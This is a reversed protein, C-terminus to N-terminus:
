RGRGRSKAFFHGVCRELVMLQALAKRFQAQTKDIADQVVSSKTIQGCAISSVQSETYARLFPQWLNDLGMEKYAYVLAEGLPTPSFQMTQDERLAYGRKLTTEIHQAMTADTGIGHQEMKAILDTEKLKEPPRTHGSRLSVEHPRFTEGERLDPLSAQNWNRYPYVDLWNRAKVAVGRTSFKEGGLDIQIVSESGVAKESCCALFHRVVFEYVRKKKNDWNAEGATFKTPHIPPHAKDDHGGSGPNRWLGTQPDLLNSAYAGWQPHSTHEAVIARLDFEPSFKDTETRPYSIFGAQYLDEAVKMAEQSGIRLYSSARKAFEITSLPYPPWKYTPNERISEVRAVAGEASCPEFFIEAAFKDFIRKRGWEFDCAQRTSENRYAVHVYWFEEPVHAYIEWQRKVIFGLTPFQCPGYSIVPSGSTPGLNSSWDFKNQLSLTLFRTFSAGSRLDIEQRADVADAESRRPERLTELAHALDRQLLTSFQARLVRLRRNVGCCVEMVEFCIHEGERDCDLWLILWQARRAEQELNTKLDRKGSPVYRRLPKHFLDLPACSRWKNFPEQFDTSMLHGAVSTFVMTCDLGQVRYRFEYCGTNGPGRRYTAQNRSLAKSAERAVSPKEAVNLVRLVM